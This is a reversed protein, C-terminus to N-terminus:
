HARRLLIIIRALPTSPRRARYVRTIFLERRLWKGDLYPRRQIIISFLYKNIIIIIIHLGM